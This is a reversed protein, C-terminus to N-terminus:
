SNAQNNGKRIKLIVRIICLIVIIVVISVVVIFQVPYTLYIGVIIDKLLMGGFIVVGIGVAGTKIINLLNLWNRHVVHKNKMSDNKSFRVNKKSGSSKFWNHFDKKHCDNTKNPESSFGLKIGCSKCEYITDGAEGLDQLAHSGGSCQEKVNQPPKDSLVAYGCNRCRYIRM